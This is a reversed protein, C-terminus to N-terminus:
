GSRARLSFDAFSGVTTALRAGGAKARMVALMAESAEIGHVEVGADSLPIAIRGTGIGLELAPGDGALERLFTVARATDEAFLRENRDDYVDAIRDGYTPATYDETVAPLSAAPEARTLGM